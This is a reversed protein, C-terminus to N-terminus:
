PARCAEYVAAAIEAHHGETLVAIHDGARVVTNGAPVIQKEGRMITVLLCGAPLGMDKVQKGDLTSDPEILADLLVPDDGDSLASPVDKLDMALLSEYVPKSRFLEPVVYAVFCAVLLPYIMSYEGTMEVILVVGTLPARVVATLMSAMGVIAYVTPTVTSQIGAAQMAQGFALGLMAGLALLPAFIGGPVRTAYSLVTLLLKGAFLGLVALVAMWGGPKLELLTLVAHNGPGTIEPLLLTCIGAVAGVVAGLVWKPLQTSRSRKVGSLLLRNFLVGALGILVGQVAMLPLARLPPAATQPLVFSPNQGVLFRSVAVGSVSGILATGYTLPSMERKLEEMVFLFGALPANFASALGAGAGAAILATYARKPVKLADGLLRGIAAGMQITPGERGLSMGTGIALLGGVFKVPILRLPNLSRLNMLVAKVHPIGSGSASPAFTVTAWAAFGGMLAGVLGLLVWAWFGFESLSHALGRAVSDVGSVALQFAVSLLGAFAGVAAARVLQVQHRERILLERVRARDRHLQPLQPKSPTKSPM